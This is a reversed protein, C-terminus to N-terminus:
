AAHFWKGASDIVGSPATGTNEEDLVKKADFSPPHCPDRNITGAIRIV